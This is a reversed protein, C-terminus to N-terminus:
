AEPEDDIPVPSYATKSLEVIEGNYEYSGTVCYAYQYDDGLADAATFDVDSIEFSEPQDETYEVSFEYDDSTIRGFENIYTFSLVLNVVLNPITTEVELTSDLATFVVVVDMGNQGVTVLLNETYVAPEKVSVILDEVVSAICYTGAEEM